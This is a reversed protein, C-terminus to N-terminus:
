IVEMYFVGDYKVVFHWPQSLRQRSYPTLSLIGHVCFSSTNVMQGMIFLNTVTRHLTATNNKIYYKQSSDPAGGAARGRLLYINDSNDITIYNNTGSISTDSFANSSYTFKRVTSAQAFFVDNNSDIASTHLGTTTHNYINWNGSLKKAIAAKSSTACANDMFAIIPNNDSTFFLRIESTEGGTNARLPTAGIIETTGWTGSLGASREAYMLQSFSTSSAHKSWYAIGFKGDSSVNLSYHPELVYTLNQRVTADTYSYSNSADHFRAVIRSNSTDRATTLINGNSDMAIKHNTCDTGYEGSFVTTYTIWNQTKFVTFNKGSGTIFVTGQIPVVLYWNGDTHYWVWELIPHEVQRIQTNPPLQNGLVIVTSDTDNEIKLYNGVIDLNARQEFENGNYSITHGGGGDISINDSGLLSQNNITKINTGSVLKEQFKNNAWTKLKNALDTLYAM